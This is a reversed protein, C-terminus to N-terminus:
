DCLEMKELCKKVEEWYECEAKTLQITYGTGKDEVHFPELITKVSILACKIASQTINFISDEVGGDSHNTLESVLQKAKDIPPIM